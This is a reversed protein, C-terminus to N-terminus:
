DLDLRVSVSNHSHSMFSVEEEEPEAEDTDTTSLPVAPKYWSLRLDQNNLKVGHVAAQLLFSLDPADLLARSLLFFALPHTVQEAEARTRFTIVASLNSDEM